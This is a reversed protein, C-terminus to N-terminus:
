TASVQVDELTKEAHANLGVAASGYRMEVMSRHTYLLRIIRKWEMAALEM